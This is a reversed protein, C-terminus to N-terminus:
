QCSGADSCGNCCGLGGSSACSSGKPQCACASFAGGDGDSVVSGLGLSAVYATLDALDGTDLAAGAVRTMVGVADNLTAASGDHFYPATAFVGCLTPTDFTCAARAGGDIDTSAKNPFGPVLNCTFGTMDHLRVTGGLDLAPNGFASDSFFPGSHCGACGATKFVTQGHTQAATLGADVDLSPNQPLPIAFNTFDALAQLEGLQGPDTRSFAGGQEVRITQDYDVVSNRV